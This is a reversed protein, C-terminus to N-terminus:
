YRVRPYLGYDPIVTVFGRSALAKGVWSYDQRRGTDWSGGYFFVAIPAAAQGQTRPPGYVDLRQYPEPGFAADHAERAASDKPSFTAFLSLPACAAALMAGLSVLGLRRAIRLTQSM